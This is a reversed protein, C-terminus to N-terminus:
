LLNDKDGASQVVSHYNQRIRWFLARKTTISARATDYISESLLTGCVHFAVLDFQLPLRIRDLQFGEATDVDVPRDVVETGEGVPVDGEDGHFVIQRNRLALHHQDRPHQGHLEDHVPDVLGASFGM